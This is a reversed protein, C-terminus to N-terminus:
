GYCGRRLSTAGGSGQSSTLEHGPWVYTLALAVAIGLSVEIFRHVAIIWPAQGRTVLMVITLTVGAFRYASQDLHLVACILGLAFIVAGYVIMGADVFM